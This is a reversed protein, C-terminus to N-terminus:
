ETIGLRADIEAREGSYEGMRDAANEMRQWQIDAHETDGLEEYVRYYSAAEFYEAIACYQEKDELDIGQLQQERWESGLLVYSRTNTLSQFVTDRYGYGNDNGKYLSCGLYYTFIVVLLGVIFIGANLIMKIKRLNEERM